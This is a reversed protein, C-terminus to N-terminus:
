LAKSERSKKNDLQVKANQRFQELFGLFYRFDVFLIPRSGLILNFIM